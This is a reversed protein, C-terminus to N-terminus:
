LDETFYTEILADRRRRQTDPVDGCKVSTV